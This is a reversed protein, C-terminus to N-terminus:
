TKQEMASGCAGCHDAAMPMFCSCAPCGWGTDILNIALLREQCTECWYHPEAELGDPVSGYEYADRWSVTSPPYADVRGGCRTCFEFSNVRRLRRPATSGPLEPSGGTDDSETAQRGGRQQGFRPRIWVGYMPREHHTWTSTRAELSFETAIRELAGLAQPIDYKQAFLLGATESVPACPESVSARIDLIRLLEDIVEDLDPRLPSASGIAGCDSDWVPYTSPSPVREGAACECFPCVPGEPVTDGVVGLKRLWGRWLNM